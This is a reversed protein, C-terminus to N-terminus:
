PLRWVTAETDFGGILSGGLRPRSGILAVTSPIVPSPLARRTWRGAATRHFLGRVESHSDDPGWLEAALVYTGDRDEGCKGM